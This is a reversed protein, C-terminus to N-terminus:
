AGSVVAREGTGKKTGFHWQCLPRTVVVSKSFIYSHASFLEINGFCCTYARDKYLVGGARNQPETNM